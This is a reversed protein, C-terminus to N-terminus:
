LTIFGHTRTKQEILAGDDDDDDDDDPGHMQAVDLSMWSTIGYWLYNAPCAARQM